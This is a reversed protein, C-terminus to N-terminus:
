QSSSTIETAFIFQPGASDPSRVVEMLTYEPLIDEYIKLISQISVVPYLKDTIWVNMHLERVSNDIKSNIIETIMVQECNIGLINKRNGTIYFKYEYKCFENEPNKYSGELRVTDFGDGKKSKFYFVAAGTKSISNFEGLLTDRAMSIKYIPGNEKRNVRLTGNQIPTENLSKPDYIRKLSDINAPLKINMGAAMDELTPVIEITSYTIKIEKQQALIGASYLIM